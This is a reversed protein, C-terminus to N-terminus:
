LNYASVVSFDIAVLADKKEYVSTMQQYTPDSLFFNKLM